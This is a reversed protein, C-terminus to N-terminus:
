FDERPMAVDCSAVLAKLDERYEPGRWVQRGFRAGFLEDIAPMARDILDAAGAPDNAAHAYVRVTVIWDLPAMGGTAVTVVAKGAEPWSVPGDHPKVESVSEAASVGDPALLAFLEAKADQISLLLM